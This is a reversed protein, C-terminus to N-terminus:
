LTIKERVKDCNYGLMSEQSPRSFHLVVLVLIMFICLLDQSYFHKLM